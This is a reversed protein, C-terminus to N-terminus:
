NQSVLNWEGTNKNYAYFMVLTLPRGGSMDTCQMKFVFTSESEKVKSIVPNTLEEPVAAPYNAVFLSQYNDQLYESRKSIFIKQELSSIAKSSETTAKIFEQEAKFPSRAINNTIQQYIERAKELDNKELLAQITQRDRIISAQLIIRTLKRINIDPDTPGSLRESDAMLRIAKSYEKIVEDWSATAFAKNGKNIATYLEARKINNRIADISEPSLDSQQSRTLALNYAAIAKLWDSGTFSQDGQEKLNAFQSMQLADQLQVSYTERDSEPLSVLIKQARLLKEIADEWQKNQMSVQAPDYSMRFEAFLRKHRVDELVPAQLYKTTDTQTMLSQYLEQARQWKKEGYLTNAENLKQKTMLLAKAENEPIYKGEYLINGALGQTLRESQLITTISKRLQQAKEQHIFKIEDALELANKCSSNATDFQNKDLATSCQAYDTEAENLKNTFSYWFYGCVGLCIVLSGIFPYLYTLYNKHNNTQRVEGTAKLKAAKVEEAIKMTARNVSKPRNRDASATEGSISPPDLDPSINNLHALTQKTRQIDADISPFDTVLSTVQRYKELASQGRGLSELKEGDQHFNEAKQIIERAHQCIESLEESSHNINEAAELLSYYKKQQKLRNFTDLDISNPSDIEPFSTDLIIDEDDEQELRLVDPDTESGADELTAVNDAYSSLTGSHNEFEWTIDTLPFKESNALYWEAADENFANTTSYFQGNIMQGIHIILAPLSQEKEWFDGLCIAAPDFDPHFLDSKPKCSPPFHPFGFPIALEVKHDTSEVIRGDGTKCIGTLAYTIEYQDPPDGKIPTVSIVPHSSFHERVKKYIEDLQNPSASM